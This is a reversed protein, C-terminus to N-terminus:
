LKPYVTIWTQSPPINNIVNKFNHSSLAFSSFSDSSFSLDAGLSSGGLSVGSSGNFANGLRGDSSEGSSSTDLSDGGEDIIVGSLDELAEELSDDSIGDGVSLVGSSFGHSGHVNDVGELSLASGDITETSSKTLWQMEFNESDVGM